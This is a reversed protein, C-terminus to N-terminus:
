SRNVYCEVTIETRSGSLIGNGDEDEVSAFDTAGIKTANIDVHFRPNARIIDVMSRYLGNRVSVAEARSSLDETWIELVYTLTTYYDQGVRIEPDDKQLLVECLPYNGSLEDLPEAEYIVNEFGSVNDAILTKLAQGIADIDAWAM